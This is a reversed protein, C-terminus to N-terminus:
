AVEAHDQDESAEEKPLLGSESLAKLAAQARSHIMACGQYVEALVAMPEVRAFQQQTKGSAFDNMLQWLYQWEPANLAEALLALMKLATTKSKEAESADAILKCIDQQLKQYETEREM